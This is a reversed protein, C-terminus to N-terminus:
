GQCTQFVYNYKYLIFFGATQINIALEFSVVEGDM